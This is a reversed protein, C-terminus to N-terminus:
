SSIKTGYREIEKNITEIMQNLENVEKLDKHVDAIILDDWMGSFNVKKYYNNLDDQAATLSSDYQLKIEELMEKYSNEM